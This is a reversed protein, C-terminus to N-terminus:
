GVAAPPPEIKKLWDSFDDLARNATRSASVGPIKKGDPGYPTFQALVQTGHQIRSGPAMVPIRRETQVMWGVVGESSVIASIAVGAGEYGWDGHSPKQAMHKANTSLRLGREAKEIRTRLRNLRAGMEKEYRLVVEREAHPYNKAKLEAYMKALTEDKEKKLEDFNKGSQPDRIDLPDSVAGELFRRAVFRANVEDLIASATHATSHFFSKVEVADELLDEIEDREDPHESLYEDMKKFFNRKVNSVRLGTVGIGTGGSSGGETYQDLGYDHMLQGAEADSGNFDPRRLIKLYADFVKASFSGGWLKENLASLWGFFKRSIPHDPNAFLAEAIPGWSHVDVGEDSPSFIDSQEERKEAHLKEQRLVDIARRQALNKVRNVVQDSSPLVGKAIADKSEQSLYKGVAWFPSVGGSVEGEEDTWGGLGMMSQLLDGGDQTSGRASSLMSQLKMYIPRYLGTDGKSAWVPSSVHAEALMHFIANLLASKGTAGRIKSFPQHQFFGELFQARALVDMEDFVGAVKLIRDLLNM